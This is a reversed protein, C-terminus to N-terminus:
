RGSAGFGETGRESDDLTQSEVWNVKHCKEIILQAVKDGARIEHKGAM